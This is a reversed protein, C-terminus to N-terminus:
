ALFEHPRNDCISSTPTGMYVISYLRSQREGLDADLGQARERGSKIAIDVKNAAYGDVSLVVADNDSSPLGKTIRLNLKIWGSLPPRAGM